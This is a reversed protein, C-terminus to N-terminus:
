KKREYFWTESYVSSFISGIVPGGDVCCLTIVDSSVLSIARLQAEWHKPGLPVFASRVETKRVAGLEGHSTMLNFPLPICFLWVLITQGHEGTLALEEAGETQDWPHHPDLWTSASVAWCGEGGDQSAGPLRLQKGSPSWKGQPSYPWLPNQRCLSCYQGEAHVQWQHLCFILVIYFSSVQECQACIDVARM